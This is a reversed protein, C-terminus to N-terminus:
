MWYGSWSFWRSPAFIEPIVTICASSYGM